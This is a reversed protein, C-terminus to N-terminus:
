LWVSGGEGDSGSAEHSRVSLMGWVLCRCRGRWDLSKRHEEETKSFSVAVWVTDLESVQVTDLADRKLECGHWWLHDVGSSRCARPGGVEGM